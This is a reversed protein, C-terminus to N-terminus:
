TSPEVDTARALGRREDLSDIVGEDGVGEQCRCRHDDL